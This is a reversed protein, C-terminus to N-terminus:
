ALLKPIEECFVMIIQVLWIAQLLTLGLCCSRLLRLSIKMSDTELVGDRKLASAIDDCFHKTMVPWIIARFVIFLIAFTVGFITRLLPFALDLGPIGMQEDFLGLISLVVTSIESIGMYFVGYAHGMPQMGLSAALGAALHHLIFILGDSWVLSDYTNKIQFSVFFLLLRHCDPHYSYLRRSFDDRNLNPGASRYHDIFEQLLFRNKWGITAIFLLTIANAGIMRSIIQRNIEIEFLPDYDHLFTRMIWCIIEEVVFISAVVTIMTLLQSTIPPPSFTANKDKELLDPYCYSEKTLLIIPHNRRRAEPSSDSAKSKM